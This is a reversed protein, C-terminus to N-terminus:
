QAQFDIYLKEPARKNALDVSRYDNKGATPRIDALRDFLTNLAVLGERRGLPASLCIHSGRAFALHQKDLSPREIDFEEPHEFQEPDRHFSAWMLMLEVGEPLDVGGLRTAVRAYRRTWQTPSGIRAVEEVLSPILSRDAQVLALLNPHQLLLMMASSLMHATTSNGAHIILMAEAILYPVNLV